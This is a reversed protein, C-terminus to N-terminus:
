MNVGEEDMQHWRVDGSMCEGRWLEENVSCLTNVMRHKVLATWKCFDASWYLLFDPKCVGNMNSWLVRGARQVCLELRRLCSEFWKSTLRLCQVSSQMQLTQWTRSTAVNGGLRTKKSLLSCGFTERLCTPVPPPISWFRSSKTTWSPWRSRSRKPVPAIVFSFHRVESGNIKDRGTSWSWYLINYHTYQSGHYFINHQTTVPPTIVPFCDSFVATRTFACSTEEWRCCGVPLLGCRM